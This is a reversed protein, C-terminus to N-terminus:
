DHAQGRWNSPRAPTICEGSLSIHSKGVAGLSRSRRSVSIDVEIQRSIERRLCRTAHQVDRVGSCGAFTGRLVFIAVVCSVRPDALDYITGHFITAFTTLVAPFRTGRFSVDAAAM